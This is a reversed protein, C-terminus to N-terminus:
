QLLLWLQKPQLKGVPCFPATSEPYTVARCHLFWMNEWSLPLLNKNVWIYFVLHKTGAETDRGSFHYQVRCGLSFSHMLFSPYILLLLLIFEALKLMLIVNESQVANVDALQFIGNFVQLFSLYDCEHSMFFNVNFFSTTGTILTICCPM